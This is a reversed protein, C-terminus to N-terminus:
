GKIKQHFEFSAMEKEHNSKPIKIRQQLQFTTENFKGLIGLRELIYFYDLVPEMFSVNNLQPLSRVMIEKRKIRKNMHFSVENVTLLDGPKKNLLVDLMLYAQWVIPATYIYLSHPVPLGIEPPLLFLNMNRNYLENLFSNSRAGPTQTWNIKFRNLEKEWNTFAVKKFPNSPNLLQQLKIQKLPNADHYTFANKISFPVISALFHFCHKEPCYAPIYLKGTESPRLFLYHFNSLAAINRKKVQLHHNSIIWLPIYGNQLYTKTRKSFVQEPLFSCQFELAYKKGQYQFMIDPRQEIERDYFELIAPINQGILWHYLQLKGEMHRQTEGDYSEFCAAGQKHAFHFIRQDGIKLVVEEGCVPCIFEEKERILLLTEKKYENGLCLTQGTKTCATLM